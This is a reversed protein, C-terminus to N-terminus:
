AFLEAFKREFGVIHLSTMDLCLGNEYLMWFLGTESARAIAEHAQIYTEYKPHKPFSLEESVKKAGVAMASNIQAQLDRMLDDTTLRNRENLWRRLGAVHAVKATFDCNFALHFTRGPFLTDDFYPLMRESACSFHLPATSVSYWTGEGPVPQGAAADTLFRLERGSLDVILANQDAPFRAGSWLRLAIM